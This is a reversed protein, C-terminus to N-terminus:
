QANGNLILQITKHYLQQVSLMKPQSQLGQLQSDISLISTFNDRILADEILALLLGNIEKKWHYLEVSFGKDQLALMRGLTWAMAYSVDFMGTTPDFITAQDPSSVPFEVRQNPMQYPVLPGRYWSVTQGGTRLQHNLATYGMQLADKIQQNKGNYPLRLNTITAPEDSNLDRGNLSLVDNVFTAPQGMSTFTWSKLVALRIFKDKDRAVASQPNGDEDPLYPEMRDLSVLYAHAKKETQPLRNGFVISFDGVPEGKDSVGQITPKNVLSVKRAHALYYLDQLSPAITWFKSLPIDIVQIPDTKSEGFDLKISPDYFYSINDGLAKSGPFLDGITMAKPTLTFDPNDPDLDDEDLLLITLWTPVDADVPEGPGAQERFTPETKNPYRIWPFTKQLFVVHPLVNTYEGTANDSPFHSYLVDNPVKVRFRDGAVAFSYKNSLTDENIPTTGDSEFVKQDVTLEYEGADLGPLHHQIFTVEEDFLYDKDNAVM